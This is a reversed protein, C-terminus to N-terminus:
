DELSDVYEDMLNFIDALEPCDLIALLKENEEDWEAQNEETILCVGCSENEDALNFETTAFLGTTALTLVLTIIIKKMNIIHQYIQLLVFVYLFKRIKCLWFTKM